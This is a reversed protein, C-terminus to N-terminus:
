PVTPEKGWNAWHRRAARIMAQAAEPSLVPQGTCAQRIADALEDASVNKLLYGVAGALLAKQVMNEEDFSTLAVIRVNPWRERITHTATVGDMVPMQLDMLIVDPPTQECLRVAEAGNSAEGTLELDKYAQLSVVLGRRVRPHDDVILVRIPKADSM